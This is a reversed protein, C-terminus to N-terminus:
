QAVTIQNLIDVNKQHDARIELKEALETIAQDIHKDMSKFAVAMQNSLNDVSKQVGDILENTAQFQTTM